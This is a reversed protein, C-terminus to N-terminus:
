IPKWCGSGPKPERWATAPGLPTRGPEALQMAHDPQAAEQDTGGHAAPVEGGLGERQGQSLQGLVTLAAVEIARQQRFGKDRLVGM